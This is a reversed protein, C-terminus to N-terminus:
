LMGSLTSVRVQYLSFRSLLANMMGPTSARTMDTMPANKVERVMARSHSRPEISCSTDVGTVGSSIMSPFSTGYKMMPINSTMTHAASARYQNWTGNRPENTVRSTLEASNMITTSESPNKM